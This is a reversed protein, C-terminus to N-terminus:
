RSRTFLKRRPAPLEHDILEAALARLALRAPSTPAFEVLARGSAVAADFAAGDYPIFRVDSLGAFRGLAASIESEVDGGGVAAARVRNVVTLPTVGPIVDALDTLARIYRQLGVPDGAAVGIVVDAEALAALTAGNRRPAATDFSLEEDRELCFGCDVITTTALGRALGLVVEIGTPRLEPWRDARAIGTLVRLAPRVELALEALGRHDLVGNNALRCAAALGPAEDLLGLVQAAVGGYVDADVLLASEGLDAIESALAVAVSSRGPAGTPGWVAVVRGGGGDDLQDVEGNTPVDAVSGLAAAPDSLAFDPARDAAGVATRVARVIDDVTADLRVVEVVGLRRLVQEADADDPAVVGVVAVGAVALRTLADRDLKRLDASLLVARGLRAAAAALLDALDVCRRVVAVGSAGHSLTAVVDAEYRPDAIATLLPVSM